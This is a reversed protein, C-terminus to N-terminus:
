EEFRKKAEARSVEVRKIELNEDIIKKMEKEIKPLDEPTLKHEMDIDYYFGEEIVPGVGFRVEGYLRKIAQALLHASSHRLIDIGEDDRYTLIQIEGGKEIPRRLDLP